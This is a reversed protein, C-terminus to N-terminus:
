NLTQSLILTKNWVFPRLEFRIILIFCALNESFSVHRARIKRYCGNQSEGKQRLAPSISKKKPGYNYMKKWLRQRSPFIIKVKVAYFTDTNSTIRTRIWDSHPFIRSSHPGSYSRIRVSKVCHWDKCNKM